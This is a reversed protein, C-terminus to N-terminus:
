SSSKGETFKTMIKTLVKITTFMEISHSKEKYYEVKLEVKKLEVEQISITEEAEKLKKKLRANESKMLDSATQLENYKNTIDNYAQAVETVKRAYAECKDKLWSFFAM